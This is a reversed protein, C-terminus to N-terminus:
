VLFEVGKHELWPKCKTLIKEEENRNKLQWVHRPGNTMYLTISKRVQDYKIKQINSWSYRRKGIYVGDEAVVLTQGRTGLVIGVTVMVVIFLSLGIVTVYKLFGEMERTLLIIVPIFSVFPIFAVTLVPNFVVFTFKSRKQDM